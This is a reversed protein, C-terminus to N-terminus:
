VSAIVISQAPLILCANMCRESERGTRRTDPLLLVVSRHAQRYWLRERRETRTERNTNLNAVSQRARIARM